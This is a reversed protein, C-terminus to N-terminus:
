NAIKAVQKAFFIEHVKLKLKAAVKPIHSADFKYLGKEYKYYNAANKFGLSEAMEQLSIRMEKRRQKILVLNIENM